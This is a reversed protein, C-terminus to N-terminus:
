LDIKQRRLIKKTDKSDLFQKQLSSTGKISKMCPKVLKVWTKDYIKESVVNLASEKDLTKEDLIQLIM